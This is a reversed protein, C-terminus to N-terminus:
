NTWCARRGPNLDALNESELTYQYQSNHSGAASAFIRIPRCFCRPTRSWPSNGACASIVQDASVKREALPKLQIFM